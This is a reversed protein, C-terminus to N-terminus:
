VVKQPNRQVHSIHRMGIRCGSVIRPSMTCALHPFPLMPQGNNHWWRRRLPGKLSLSIPFPFSKKRHDIDSSFTVLLNSKRLVLRSVVDSESVTYTSLSCSHMGTPHTGGEETAAVLFWYRGRGRGPPIGGAPLGRGWTSLCVSVKLFMVKGCSRGLPLFLGTHHPGMHGTVSWHCLLCFDCPSGGKYVSLIVSLCSQFCQRVRVEDASLLLDCRFTYPCQNNPILDLCSALYSLNSQKHNRTMHRKITFPQSKGTRISYHLIPLFIFEAIVICLEM